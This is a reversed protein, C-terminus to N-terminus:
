NWMYTLDYLIQKEIKEKQEAQNIESLMTGEPDMWTTEFPFTVKKKITSYYDM